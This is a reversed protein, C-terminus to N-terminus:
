LGSDLRRVLVLKSNLDHRFYRSRHHRLDLHGPGVREDDVEIALGVLRVSERM